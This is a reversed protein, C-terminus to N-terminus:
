RMGVGGPGHLAARLRDEYGLGLIWGEEDSRMALMGALKAEPLASVARSLLRVQAADRIEGTTECHAIVAGNILSPWIEAFVLDGEPAEFPWVCAGFRRRLRALVPLGM